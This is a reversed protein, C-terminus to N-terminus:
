TFMLEGFTSVVLMCLFLPRSCIKFTSSLRVRQTVTINHLSVGKGGGAVKRSWGEGGRGGVRGKVM